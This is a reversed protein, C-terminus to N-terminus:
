ANGSGDCDPCVMEGSGECKDCEIEGDGDCDSCRVKGYKCDPCKKEGSGNCDPCENGDIEGSGECEDCEIEGAGDCKDCDIEGSGNCEDCEVQGCDCNYCPIRGSGDCRSCEEGGSGDTSELCNGNDEDTSLTSDGKYYYKLTDVYPYKAYHINEIKVTFVDFSKKNGEPTIVIAEPSSDNSSKAYWKKHAAYERFLQQHSDETYYIRDMFTIDPSTLNWVLARAVIKSSDKDSKLILLSCVKPNKTYIDFYNSDVNCMCSNGLTGKETGYLYNRYNYWFAIDDGSVLELRGFIDNMRDFASKYKNVFDEIEADTFKNKTVNLLARIARGIRITQRNKTWVDQNIDMKLNDQNIVCEGGPFKLRVFVKGSIPSVAKKIIEGREDEEPDFPKSGNPTYEM